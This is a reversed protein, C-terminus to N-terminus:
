TKYKMASSAMQENLYENVAIKILAQYPVDIKQAAQKLRNLMSASMRITIPKAPLLTERLKDKGRQWGDSSVYADPDEHHWFAFEEDESQFQPLQKTQNRM